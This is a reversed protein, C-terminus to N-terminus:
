QAERIAIDDYWVTDGGSLRFTLDIRGATYDDKATYKMSIKRWDHTDNTWTAERIDSTGATQVMRFAGGLGFVNQTKIYMSIIYTKGPILAIGQQIYSYTSPGTKKFSATGSHAVTKDWNAGSIGWTDATTTGIEFSPNKVLNPNPSVDDDEIQITDKMPLVRSYSASNNIQLTLTKTEEEVTDQLVQVPITLTPSGAPITATSSITTYDAGNVANGQISLSVPLSSTLDGNRRLM